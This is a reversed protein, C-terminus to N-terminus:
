SPIFVVLALHTSSSRKESIPVSIQLIKLLFLCATPRELIGTLSGLIIPNWFNLSWRKYLSAGFIALRVKFLVTYPSGLELSFLGPESTSSVYWYRLLLQLVLVVKLLAVKIFSQNTVPGATRNRLSLGM